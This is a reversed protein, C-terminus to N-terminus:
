SINLLGIVCLDFMKILWDDKNIVIMLFVVVNISIIILCDLFICMIGCFLVICM